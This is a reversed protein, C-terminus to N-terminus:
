AKGPEDEDSEGPKPNLRELADQIDILKNKLFDRLDDEPILDNNLLVTVLAEYGPETAVIGAMGDRGFSYEGSILDRRLGTREAHYEAPTYADKMDRLRKIAHQEVWRQYKARLSDTWAHIRYERGKYQIPIYGGNNGVLEVVPDSQDSM